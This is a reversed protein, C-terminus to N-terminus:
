YVKDYEVEGNKFLHWKDEEIIHVSKELYEGQYYDICISGDPYEYWSGNYEVDEYSIFEQFDEETDFVMPTQQVTHYKRMGESMLEDNEDDWFWYRDIVNVRIM